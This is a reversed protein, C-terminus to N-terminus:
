NAARPSNNQEAKEQEEMLHAFIGFFRYHPSVYLKKDLIFQGSATPTNVAQEDERVSVDVKVDIKGRM